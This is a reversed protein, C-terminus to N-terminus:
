KLFLTSIEIWAGALPAVWLSKHSTLLFRCKLGRERSPLSSFQLILSIIDNLKLGRERSPLSPSKSNKTSNTRIEIWAGALPAVYRIEAVVNVCFCKLGRERSPLSLIRCYCRRLNLCKLGRERSPLSLLFHAHTTLKLSKLGRERSPLSLYRVKM